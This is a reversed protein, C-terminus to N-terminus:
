KKSAKKLWVKGSKIWVEENDEDVIVEVVKKSQPNQVSFEAHERVTITALNGKLSIKEISIKEKFTRLMPMVMAMEQEVRPYERKTGGASVGVYDKSYVALVGKVDRKEHALLYADLQKQIAKKADSTADAMLMAPNLLLLLVTLIGFLNGINKRMM